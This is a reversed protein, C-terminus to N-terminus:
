IIPSKAIKASPRPYKSSTQSIKKTIIINREGADELLFSKVSKIQGGLIGIAKKAGSIEEDAKAAKLSLFYGDKKVFPLCYESLDRLNAVARATAFDFKERYETKRAAEEARLHLLQAELGINSLIDEIVKLKKATSDLLTMKLDPRAILMAMGPFGAGTGVDIVSAGNPIEIASFITLSDVFHKVVIEEPEVISTLNIKGNWSVLLNAYTEFRELAVEDLVTGYKEALKGLMQKNIFTDM